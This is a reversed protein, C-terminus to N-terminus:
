SWKGLKNAQMLADVFSAGRPTLNSAKLGGQGVQLAKVAGATDAAVTKAEQNRGMAQLQATLQHRTVALSVQSQRSCSIISQPALKASARELKAYVPQLDITPDIFQFGLLDMHGQSKDLASALLKSGSGLVRIRAPKDVQLQKARYKQTNMLVQALEKAAKDGDFTKQEPTMWCGLENTLAEPAYFLNYDPKKGWGDKDLIPEALERVDAVSAGAGIAAQEYRIFAGDAKDVKGRSEVKYLGPVAGKAAGARIDTIYVAAEGDLAAIRYYVSIDGCKDMHQMADNQNQHSTMSGGTARLQEVQRVLKQGKYSDVDVQALFKPLLQSNIFVKRGCSGNTKYSFYVFKSLDIGKYAFSDVSKM